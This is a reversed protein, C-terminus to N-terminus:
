SIRLLLFGLKSKYILLKVQKIAIIESNIANKAYTAKIEEFIQRNKLLLIRQFGAEFSLDASLFLFLM